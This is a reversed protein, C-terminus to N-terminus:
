WHPRAVVKRGLEEARQQVRLRHAEIRRGTPEHHRAVAHLHQRGIHVQTSRTLVLIRRERRCHPIKSPRRPPPGAPRGYSSTASRARRSPSCPCGRHAPRRPPSRGTRGAGRAARRAPTTARGCVTALQRQRELRGRGDGLKRDLGVPLPHEGVVPDRLRETPGCGSSSRRGCRRAPVTLLASSGPCGPPVHHNSAHRDRALAGRGSADHEHKELVLGALHVQDDWRRHVFLVTARGRRAAAAPARGGRASPGCGSRARAHARSARRGRPRAPRADRLERVLVNLNRGSRELHGRALLLPEGRVLSRYQEYVAPPVILNVQGTEDELLMFVVGNATAPRQRTIAMGAVAVNGGPHGPLEANSVTGAPLHPRLLELPHPGVSLSTMGYDALMREWDTQVPLEPIPATPELPLTLQSNGGAVTHPRAVVGARWLLERRPGFRDCAGSAVLADLAARSVPARRALDAVDDYPRGAAVAEAEAEGVSRVYGLGVRVAGDQNECKAGSLNVDPPLVEVGRRQGDRVLSAPPYFGMPQANLLACLFEAPFHHRLWASQYALLAFAASHSKPFGFGSFGALKDYTRNALEADVGQALAGAVFRSRLAEIAEASRKRSMARRLGEAEGVTFGALAMAVELVQDQFVVVGLTERLPEALSPHDVPPVFSPDERLKQRREIYPHVAGGQIPGPRVLAVQITLDDLNEPRTRLLSQMQARSEIQFDGVTDARQIEAYVDQDDLPIRSLDITRGRLRAIQDVCDEVASLMGLGLLDIKLFGADACSDKDWQCIQRGQMAAPQVPVLEVLPRSSIIM